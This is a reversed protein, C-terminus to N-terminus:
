IDGYKEYYSYWCWFGEKIHRIWQITNDYNLKDIDFGYAERFHKCRLQIFFIKIALNKSM